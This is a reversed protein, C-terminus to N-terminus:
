PEETRDYTWAGDDWVYVDTSWASVPEPSGDCTAAIEGDRVEVGVIGYVHSGDWCGGHAVHRVFEEGDWGWLALSEQEQGVVGLTAIDRTGDGTLDRVTFREVAEARGGADTFTVEYASGTWRAVDLRVAQGALSVVVIEAWGDGTVDVTVSEVGRGAPPEFTSAFAAADADTPDRETDEPTPEGTPTPTEAPTPTAAGTPTGGPTPATATARPTTALPSATLSTGAEERETVDDGFWLLGLVIVLFTLVGALVGALTAAVSARTGAGADRGPLM